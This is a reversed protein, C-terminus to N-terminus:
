FSVLAEALQLGRFKPAIFIGGMEMTEGDIQVLRGVGAYEGKCTIIAVKDRKLDSPAFGVSAYQNNIWELDQITALQIGM